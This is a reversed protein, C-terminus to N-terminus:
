HVRPAPAAVLDVVTNLAGHILNSVGSMVADLGVILVFFGFLLTITFGIGFLNLQPAARTVVGLAMNVVLLGTEFIHGGWMAASLLFDKDINPEGIPLTQFSNALAGLLVLHGNIALYTLTGMIMFIQGVVPVNAGRQPDILTAFGLGMTMSVTQGAFTLAEFALEMVMGIAVGILIEQVATLAGAGSFITLEQSVPVLPAILVTLAVTLVIKVRSPITSESAIPAAAVFGGIRLAPWWLRSVWHSVDAVNLTVPQM